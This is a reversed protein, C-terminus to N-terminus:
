LSSHCMQSQKWWGKVFIFEFTFWCSRRTYAVPPNHTIVVWFMEIIWLLCWWKQCRQCVIKVTSYNPVTM